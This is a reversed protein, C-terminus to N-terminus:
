KAPGALPHRGDVHDVTHAAAAKRSRALKRAHAGDPNQLKQYQELHEPSNFGECHRGHWKAGPDPFLGCRHGLNLGCGACARVPKLFQVKM